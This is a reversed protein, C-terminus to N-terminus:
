KSRALACDFIKLRTVSGKSSASALGAEGLMSEFTKFKDGKSRPGDDWMQWEGRTPNFIAYTAGDWYLGFRHGGGRIRTLTWARKNAQASQAVVQDFIWQRLGPPKEGKAPEAEWTRLNSRVLGASADHKSRDNAYTWALRELVSGKNGVTKTAEALSVERENVGNLAAVIWILSMTACYGEDEIYEALMSGDAVGKHKDSTSTSPAKGLVHGTRLVAGANTVRGADMASKSTASSEALKAPKLLTNQNYDFIKRYKWGM